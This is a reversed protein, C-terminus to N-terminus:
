ARPVRAQASRGAAASIVFAGDDRLTLTGGSAEVLERAIALGLGSGGRGRAADLRAFREFIREREAAPVGPGTDTVALGARGDRQWVDITVPGGAKVANDVVARLAREV